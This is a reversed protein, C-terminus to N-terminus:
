LIINNVRVVWPLVKVQLRFYTKPTEDPNDPNEPDPDDKPSAPHGFELVNDVKLKYVNNRVVGFEMPGMQTNNGNDFHRNKYLYYVYYAYKGGELSTPRYLAFEGVSKNFEEATVENVADKFADQTLADYNIDFAKMFDLAMPHTPAAIVAEKVMALDGYITGQHRYIIHGADMAAKLKADSELAVIRGRFAISTTVGVKQYRYLNESNAKPITNETLYRWINYDAKETASMDGGWTSDDDNDSGLNKSLADYAIAADGFNIAEGGDYAELGNYLYATKLWETSLTPASKQTFNPTVVYNDAKELGCITWKTDTGDASVRPLYYFDKAMNVLAMGDMQVYGVLQKGNDVVNGDEDLTSNHMNYIPYYNKLTQGAITTEKFDFRAAVRAVEIIGLNFPNEPTNYVKTMAEKTPLTKLAIDHNAMLFANERWIEGETINGVAKALGEAFHADAAAILKSTPNCFAFVAVEENEHDLLAQSEFQVNYTPRANSGTAAHAAALNHTIYTYDGTTADQSALVVLVSGVQNEEGKGVEYGDSSNSNHDGDWEGTTARSQPLSLTLTAYVDGKSSDPTGGGPEDSSCSFMMFSAAFALFLKSIKKM